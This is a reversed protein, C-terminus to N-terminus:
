VYQESKIMESLTLSACNRGLHSESESELYVGFDSEMESESEVWNKRNIGSRNRNWGLIRSESELESEVRNQYEQNRNRNWCFISDNQFQNQNWFRADSTLTYCFKLLKIATTKHWHPHAMIEAWM